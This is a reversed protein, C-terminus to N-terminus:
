IEWALCGRNEIKVPIFSSTNNIISSKDKSFDDGLYKVLFYGGGGAGLLKIVKFNYRNLNSEIKTLLNNMVGKMRKKINWSNILAEHLLSEIESADKVKCSKDIFHDIVSLIERLQSLSNPATKQEKLQNTASRKIGTFVLYTNNLYNRISSNINPYNIQKVVGNPLFELSNVGGLASLYQDQRGIPKQLDKIEIESAIHAAEINSIEYGKLKNIAMVLAVAFSSSSGLGTGSLVNGFSALEIYQDLSFRKLCQRIIPHTIIEIEAYEERSSYNLVGYYPNPSYGVFINSYFSLAAGITKGRGESEVFWEIDTGGGLLSIRYPCKCAIIM